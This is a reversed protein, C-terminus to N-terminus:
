APAKETAALVSRYLDLTEDVMREATFRDRILQRGAEGLQQAKEPEELLQIIKDALAHADEAPVILGTKEDELAHAVGGVNTAVVPKGLAMAEFMVTGLGQQLSPLCFIDMAQLADTYESLYPVFTVHPSISLQQAMRRLKPEEPGTGAILFEVDFGRGLVYQAAQLFYRQGKVAELPSATGVVQVRKSAREPEPLGPQDVEVGSYIVQIKDEDINAQETLNKKVANSVTIVKGGYPPSFDMTEGAALFDHVTLVVPVKLRRCLWMGLPLADRTQIHVLEIGTERLNRLLPGSLLTRWLWFDLYPYVLPTITRLREASVARASRCLLPARIGRGPLREALRLTYASSGRAQLFRSVLLVTM